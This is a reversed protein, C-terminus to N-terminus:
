ATADLNDPESVTRISMEGEVSRAIAQAFMAFVFDIDGHDQYCNKKHCRPWQWEAAARSVGTAYIAQEVRPWFQMAPDRHAAAPKQASKEADDVPLRRCEYIGWGEASEVDRTLCDHFSQSASALTAHIEGDWLDHRRDPRLIYYGAVDTMAVNTEEARTARSIAADRERTLDDVQQQLQVNTAM